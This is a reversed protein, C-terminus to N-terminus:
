TTIILVGPLDVFGIMRLSSFIKSYGKPIFISSHRIITESREIKKM